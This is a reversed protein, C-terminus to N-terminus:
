INYNVVKRCLNIFEEHCFNGKLLNIRKDVWQVNGTLYGQKSDVRDLSANWAGIQLEYTNRPFFLDLGTYYCKKNQKNYIELLYEVSLPFSKKRNDANIHLHKMYCETITQVGCIESNFKKKLCKCAHKRVHSDAVLRERSCLKCCIIWYKHGKSTHSYKIVKTFEFEFGTLNQM